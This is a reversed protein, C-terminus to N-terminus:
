PGLDVGICLAREALIAGDAFRIERELADLRAAAPVCTLAGQFFAQLLVFAAGGEAGFVGAQEEFYAAVVVGEGVGAVGAGQLREREVLADSDARDQQLVAVYFGRAVDGILQAFDPRVIRAKPQKAQAGRKPTLEVVVRQREDIVGGRLDAGGARAWAM